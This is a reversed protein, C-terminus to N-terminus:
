IDLAQAQSFIAEQIAEQTHPPVDAFAPAPILLTGAKRAIHIELRKPQSGELIEATSARTERDSRNGTFFQKVVWGGVVVTAAATLMAKEFKEKGWM